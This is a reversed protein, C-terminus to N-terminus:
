KETPEGTEKSVPLSYCNAPLVVESRDLFMSVLKAGSERSKFSKALLTFFATNNMVVHWQAPQVEDNRIYISDIGEATFVAACSLMTTLRMFFVRAAMKAKVQKPKASQQGTSTDMHRAPRDRRKSTSEAM